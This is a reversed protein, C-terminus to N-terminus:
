FRHLVGIGLRLTNWQNDNKASAHSYSFGLDIATREALAYKGGLRFTHVKGDLRWAMRGPGFASDPIVARSVPKLKPNRPATTVLDGNLYEYKAYTTIRDSARFDIATSIVRQGLEFSRGKDADRDIMEFRAQASIRDTLQKGATFALTAISGDRIESDSHQRRRLETSLAFWPATFSRSPQFVYGLSGMVTLSNLDGFSTHAGTEVGVKVVVGSNDNLQQRYGAIADAEFVAAEERFAEPETNSLNNNYTWAGRLDFSMSGANASTACVILALTLLCHTFLNRIFKSLM